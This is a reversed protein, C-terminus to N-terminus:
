IAARSRGAEGKGHVDVHQAMGAPVGQDVGAVVRPADLVPEAV